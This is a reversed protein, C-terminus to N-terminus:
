TLWGDTNPKPNNIRASLDATGVEINDYRFTQTAPDIKEGYLGFKAYGNVSTVGSTITAVKQGNVWTEASQGLILKDVVNYVKGREIIFQNPPAPMQGQLVFGINGNRHLFFNYVQYYQRCFLWTAAIAPGPDWYMSYAAWLAQGPTPRLKYGDIEARRGDSGGTIDDPWSEGFRWIMKVADGTRYIANDGCEAEFELGNFTSKGGNPVPTWLAPVVIEDPDVATVTLAATTNEPVSVQSASTIEPPSGGEKVDTVTIKLDQTTTGDPDTAGVQVEYVNDGNTDTPNEFDPATKFTLAGSNTDIDFLAADSGGTISFTIMAIGKKAM